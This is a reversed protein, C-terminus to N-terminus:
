AGNCRMGGDVTSQCSGGCCEYDQSCTSNDQKCQACSSGNCYLGICCTQQSCGSSQAGCSPACKGFENCAGSCCTSNSQCFGGDGKCGGDGITVDNAAVDSGTDTTGADSADAVTGDVGTDGVSAADVCPAGCTLGPDVACAAAASSAACLFFWAVRM